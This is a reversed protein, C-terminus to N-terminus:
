GALRALSVLDLKMAYGVLKPKDPPQSCSPSLLISKHAEVKTLSVLSFGTSSGRATSCRSLPSYM